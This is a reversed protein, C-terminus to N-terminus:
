QENYFFSIRSDILKAKAYNRRFEARGVLLSSGESHMVDAPPMLM